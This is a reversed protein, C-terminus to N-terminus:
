SKPCARLNKHFIEETIDFNPNKQYGSAIKHQNLLIRYTIFSPVIQAIHERFDHIDLKLEQSNNYIIIVNEKIITCPKLDDCIRCDQNHQKLSVTNFFSFSKQSINLEM